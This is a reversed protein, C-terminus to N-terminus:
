RGGSAPPRAVLVATVPFHDSPTRGDRETRDIGTAEIALSEGALIWDIRPGDTVGRFGNFTGSPADGDSVAAYTDVLVSGDLLTQHPPSGADTNFDGTVVVDPDAAIAQLAAIRDRLLAASRHRAERGRHDFHTNVVLLPRPSSADALLLWTAMRPLAADWGKSAPQEPRESLWFHGGALRTFRERRYLIGCHESPTTMRSRGFYDYGDLQSLLFDAQMRLTEQTGLIDPDFARVTEAVLDCRAEWRNPGDNALGYRLNFSMVRLPMIPDAAEIISGFSLSAAVLILLSRM